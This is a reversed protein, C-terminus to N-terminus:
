IPLKTVGLADQMQDVSVSYEREEYKFTLHTLAHDELHCRFTALFQWCLEDYSPAYRDIFNGLGANELCQMTCELMGLDELTPKDFLKTPFVRRKRVLEYREKESENM